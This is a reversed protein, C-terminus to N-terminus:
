RRKRLSTLAGLAVTAASLIIMSAVLPNQAMDGTRARRAGLVQPLDRTAGLVQPDEARVIVTNDVPPDVPPNEELTPPTPPTPPVVIVSPPTDPIDVTKTETWTGKRCEKTYKIFKVEYLSDIMTLSRTYETKDLPVLATM